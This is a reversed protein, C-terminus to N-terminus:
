PHDARLLHPRVHAAILEGVMRHGTADFHCMDIFHGPISELVSAGDIVEVHEVSAVERMIRNYDRDLRIPKSDADGVTKVQFRLWKRTDADESELRARYIRAVSSEPGDRKIIEELTRAAESVHGQSALGIADHIPSVVEPNDRLLLFLPTVNHERSLRVIRKLNQRYGEEDVRPVATALDIEVPPAESAFRRLIRRAGRFAYSYEAAAVVVRAPSDYFARFGAMKEVSDPGPPMM